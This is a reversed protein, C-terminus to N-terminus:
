TNTKCAKGRDVHLQLSLSFVVVRWPISPLYEGSCSGIVKVCSSSASSLEFSIEDFRLEGALRVIEEGPKNVSDILKPVDEFINM